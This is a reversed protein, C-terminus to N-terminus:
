GEAGGFRESWESVQADEIKSFLVGQASVAQGVPLVDLVDADAGPWSLDDVGVSAAIKPATFPLIPAALRAFLAVLNLGTRVGVAARDRDTKLATWPAAEQLYENGLVWAARLAQAAKRFEMDEFQETAEAVTARIDAELRAEVPGAEGGEPVVGDFKSEAFKVIRNVFNGLVDALDKNIAGQFQEWTFASDSHEPGYATLYWRWYDAPLLELAQDMFVGRKQSTSFKGGYWNLWNFAKLQDVTKWPEGSGIITAPFSVTHFAVNDKGMFQVYRVDAAGEDLRWWDRWTRGTADAWEETAGIYEIPADFWVYFVKDEMGPRPFGDKTVPIGWALDRTIGRDILGEDLHKYAISKALPQWGSKGDVWARIEPEIKTQLLYLHRTDRVELNKSGSVASYPDILDTPDLLRGCNDCQDGRAGVHGCHPCIGEVYRDPLFRADDISYIMRDVREEILGNKELAEAFHQTLRHNQPNSSRGFWDYSLGFAEGARKQILHQEDCYTRVDQNAAAAALEAPTGHEDTACIYLVEHGQGRKFRAWVDAPLMSGALNGLHKIGNIYPLASTILIRAM